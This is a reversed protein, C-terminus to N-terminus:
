FTNYSYWYVSRRVLSCHRNIVSLEPQLSWGISTYWARSSILVSRVMERVRATTFCIASCLLPSTTTTLLYFLYAICTSSYFNTYIIGWALNKTYIGAQYISGLLFFFYAVRVRYDLKVSNTKRLFWVQARNCTNWNTSTIRGSLMGQLYLETTCVLTRETHIHMNTGRPNTVHTLDDFMVHDWLFYEHEVTNM